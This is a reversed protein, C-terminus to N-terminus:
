LRAVLNAYRDCTDSGEHVRYTSHWNEEPKPAARIRFLENVEDASIQVLHFSLDVLLFAIAVSLM